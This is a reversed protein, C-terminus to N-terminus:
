PITPLPQPHHNHNSQQKTPRSNSEREREREREREGYKENIMREAEKNWCSVCSFATEGEKGTLEVACSECYNKRNEAREKEERERKEIEGQYCDRCYTHKPNAKDPYVMLSKNWCKICYEGYYEAYCKNSCFKHNDNKTTHYYYKGSKDQFCQVCTYKSKTKQTNQQNNPKPQKPKTETQPFYISQKYCNESCFLVLIDGAQHDTWHIKDIEWKKMKNKERLYIYCREKSLKNKCQSCNNNKINRLWNIILTFKHNSDHFLKNFREHDVKSALKYEVIYLDWLRDWKKKTTLIM